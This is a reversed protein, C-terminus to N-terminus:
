AKDHFYNMFKQVLDPGTADARKASAPDLFDGTSPDRMMAANRQWFSMAPDPQPAAAPRPQPMQVSAGVPGGQAMVPPAPTPPTGPAPGVVQPPPLPPAQQPQPPQAMRQAGLALLGNEMGPMNASRHDFNQWGMDAATGPSMGTPQPPAIPTRTPAFPLQDGKPLAPSVGAVKHSNLVDGTSALGTAADFPASAPGGFFPGLVSAVNSPTTSHNLLMAIRHLADQSLTPM